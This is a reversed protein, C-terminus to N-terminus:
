CRFPIEYNVSKPARNPQPVGSRRSTMLDAKRFAGFEFAQGVSATDVL